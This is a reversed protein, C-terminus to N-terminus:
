QIGYFSILSESKLKANAYTPDPFVTVSRIPDTGKWVGHRVASSSTTSLGVAGVTLLTKYFSSTYHPIFIFASGAYSNTAEGDAAFYWFLMSPDSLDQATGVSGSIHYFHGWQYNGATTDGNFQCMTFVASQGGSGTIRGSGMILLHKYYSPIDVTLSAKDEELIQSYIVNFPLDIKGVNINGGTNKMWSQYQEERRGFDNLDRVLSQAEGSQWVSEFNGGVNAQRRVQELQFDFMKLVSELQAGYQPM